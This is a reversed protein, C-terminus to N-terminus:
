SGRNEVVELMEGESLNRSDEERRHKYEFTNADLGRESVVM